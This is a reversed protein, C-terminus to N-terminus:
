ERGRGGRGGHGGGVRGREGCRGGCECCGLFELDDGGLIGRLVAREGACLADAEVSVADEDGVGAGDGAQGPEHCLRVSHGEPALTTHALLVGEGFALCVGAVVLM